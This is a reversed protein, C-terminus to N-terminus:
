LVRNGVVIITDNKRVTRSGMWVKRSEGNAFSVNVATPDDSGPTDRGVSTVIADMDNKQVMKQLAGMIPTANEKVGQVILSNLFSKFSM